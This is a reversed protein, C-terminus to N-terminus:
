KQWQDKNAEFDRLRLRGVITDPCEYVKEENGNAVLNAEAHALMGDLDTRVGKNYYFATREEISVSRRTIKRGLVQSLIQAVEDYSLLEPGVIPKEVGGLKPACFLEVAVDAIDDEAVLGLKATGTATIFEDKEIISPGDVQIFNTFFWSPWLVAYNVGIADLYAHVRGVTGSGGKECVTASM